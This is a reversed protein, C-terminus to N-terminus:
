ARSMQIEKVVVDGDVVIAEDDLFLSRRISGDVAAVQMGFLDRRQRLRPQM